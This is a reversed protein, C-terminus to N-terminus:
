APSVFFRIVLGVIVPVAVEIHDLGNARWAEEVAALLAIWAAPEQSPHIRALIKKLV